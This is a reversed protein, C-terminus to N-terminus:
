NVKVDGSNNSAINTTISGNKTADEPSQQDNSREDGRMGGFILKQLTSFPLEILLCLVLGMLYSFVVSAFILFVSGIYNFHIPTRLSLVYLRMLFVHCLYAAYTLRGLPEFIRHDFIRRLVPSIAFIQGIIFISIYIGWSYKAIPYFVAMWLSPKAFDYEYFIYNILLTGIVAPPVLYWLTRFWGKQAPDTNSKRLKLYIMGAIIGALYNGLNVHLPIYARQYFEDFWLTFRQGQLTVLFIGELNEQYIFYSPVLISAFAAMALVTGSYRRLKIIVLLLLSGLIFLQFDCGLYWAQQVCPQDGHLYNNVYLLNTWWNRRCFARESATGVKWMPGDQLKSLWTAQLLIVFAYVPTLRIYRYVIAKLLFVIGPSRSRDDAYKIMQIALLFGSMAFFTQVVQPGGTLIMMFMQHFIMEMRITNQLPIISYIMVAHGLIVLTMTLFRIAQFFRLDKNLVDQSRSTLRYWNRLISFSVFFLKRSSDPQQKYHVLDQKYNITKDYWTSLITLLIFGSLVLVFSLDLIDVDFSEDNRSCVEIETYARLRYTENLQYNICIDLLEGYRERDKNSDQYVSPDFIYPFDIPFKEVRLAQQTANSLRKVLRKCNEMCVGRDLLAHNYHRKWNKSFGEILQWLESSNDPRLVVRVLCYAAIQGAPAEEMCQDYDDAETIRPMRHYQSTEIFEGNITIPLIAIVFSMYCLLSM